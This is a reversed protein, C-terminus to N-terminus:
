RLPSQGFVEGSIVGIRWKTQRFYLLEVALATTTFVLLNHLPRTFVVRLVKRYELYSKYVVSTIHYGLRPQQM